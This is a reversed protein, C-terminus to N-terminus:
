LSKQTTAFLERDGPYNRREFVTWCIGDLPFIAGYQNYGPAKQLVGDKIFCNKLNTFNKDDILGPELDTKIGLFGGESPILNDKFSKDGELYRDPRGSKWRRLKPRPIM